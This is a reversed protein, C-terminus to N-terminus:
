EVIINSPPSPALSAQGTVFGPPPSPLSQTVRIHGIDMFANEDGATTSEIYALLRVTRWTQANWSSLTSADARQSQAYLGGMRGDQSWIYTKTRDSELSMVVFYWQNHGSSGEQYTHNPYGDGQNHNCNGFQDCGQGGAAVDPGFTRYRYAGDSSHIPM